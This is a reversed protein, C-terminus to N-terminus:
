FFFPLSPSRPWVAMENPWVPRRKMKKMWSFFEM